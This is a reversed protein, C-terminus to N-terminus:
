DGGSAAELEQKFIEMAASSSHEVPFNGAIRIKEAAHVAGAACGAALLAVGFRLAIHKM